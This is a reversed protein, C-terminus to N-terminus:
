DLVEVTEVAMLESIEACTARAIKERGRNTQPSFDLHVVSLLLEQEGTDRQFLLRVMWLQNQRQTDIPHYMCLPQCDTIAAGPIIYQDSDGELRIEDRDTDIKMLLLDSSMTWKIKVFSERPIISVYKLDPDHLDVILNPRKAIEARLRGHAWRNGYVCLCMQSTYTGWVFGAIGTFVLLVCLIMQGVSGLWAGLAVLGIGGLFYFVPVIDRININWAYAGNRVLQRFPEPVPTVTAVMSIEENAMSPAAVVAAPAVQLEPHVVDLKTALKPLSARLSLVEATTLEVQRVVSYRMTQIGWTRYHDDISAYVPHDLPSADPDDFWEVVFKCSIQPQPIPPADRLAKPLDGNEWAKLLNESYYPAMQVEEKHSWRRLDHSYARRARTWGFSSAIGVLCALEFGAMLWNLFPAPKKPAFQPKGVDEQVDSAMRHAIYMPLLDVRNQMAVPVHHQMDFHFYSAYAIAGALVGITGALWHNRCKAAAVLLHLIGGLALALVMPVLVILYWGWHFMLSLIFGAALAAAGAGCVLMPLGALMVGMDSVYRERENLPPM